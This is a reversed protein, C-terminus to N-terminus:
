EYAKKAAEKTTFGFIVGLSVNTDESM